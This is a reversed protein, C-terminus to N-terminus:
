IGNKGTINEREIDLAKKYDSQAELLYGLKEKITGRISYADPSNPNLILAEELDEIAEVFRGLKYKVYGRNEYVLPISANIEISRDYDKLADTYNNLLFNTVGRNHYAEAYKPNFNIASTYDKVAEKFNQLCYKIFGRSYYAEAYEFDLEIAKSYHKIKEHYDTAAVGLNFFPEAVKRREAAEKEEKKRRAEAEKRAREARVKEEAVETVAHVADLVQEWAEEAYTWTVVPKGDKPLVQLTKIVPDYKWGCHKLIIPIISTEGKTYRDVAKKFEVEHIFESAFFDNSVLPLIVHATRLNELIVDEWREGPKILADHFIEIKGARRLPFFATLLGNKFSEDERAYIIFIKLPTNM